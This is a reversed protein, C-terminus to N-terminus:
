YLSFLLSLMGILQTVSAFIKSADMRFPPMWDIALIEGCLGKYRHNCTTNGCNMCPASSINYVPVGDDNGEPAYNCVIFVGNKFATRGCGIMYTSAWIMQTFNSYSIDYEFSQITNKGLYDAESYWIDVAKKLYMTNTPDYANRFYILNQGVDPVKRISSCLDHDINCNNSWCQAVFELEPSYSMIKMDSAKQNGTKKEKGLAIDNRKNNHAELIVDRESPNLMFVKAKKKGCLETDLSCPQRSCATHSRGCELDCFYNDIGLTVTNLLLIHIATLITNSM